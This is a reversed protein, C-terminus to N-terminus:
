AWRGLRWDPLRQEWGRKSFKRHSMRAGRPQDVFGASAVGSLVKDFLAPFFAVGAELWGRTVAAFDADDPVSCNVEVHVLSVFRM